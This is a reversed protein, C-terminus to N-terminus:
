GEVKAPPSQLALIRTVAHTAHDRASGADDAAHDHIAETVIEILHNREGVAARPRDLTAAIEAADDRSAAWRERDAADYKTSSALKDFAEVMGEAIAKAREVGDGAPAFQQVKQLPKAAPASALAALRRRSSWALFDAVTDFQQVEDMHHFVTERPGISIMRKGLALGYGFEVHRGGRGGSRPEGQISVVWDCARVDACDEIAFRRREADEAQESLGTPIVHDADPKVWRSTITHGQAKLAQALAHCEPRQSFRAAIYVAAGEEVTVPADNTPTMRPDTM